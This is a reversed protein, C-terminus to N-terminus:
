KIVASVLERLRNCIKSESYKKNQMDSIRNEISEGREENWRMGQESATKEFTKVKKGDINIWKVKLGESNYKIKKLVRLCDIIFLLNYITYFLEKDQIDNIEIYYDIIKKEDEISLKRCHVFSMIDMQPFHPYVKEFDCFVIGYDDNIMINGDHLQTNGFVKKGKEIETVVNEYLENACFTNEVNKLECLFDIGDKLYRYLDDKDLNKFKCNMIEEVVPLKHIKSLEDMVKKCLDMGIEGYSKINKADIYSYIGIQKEKSYYLPEAVSCGNDFLYKTIYFESVCRCESMHKSYKTDQNYKKVFFSSEGTGYRYCTNRLGGTVSVINKGKLVDNCIKYFDIQNRM